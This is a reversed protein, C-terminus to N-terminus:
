NSKRITGVYTSVTVLDETEFLPYQGANIFLLRQGPHGQVKFINVLEPHTKAM